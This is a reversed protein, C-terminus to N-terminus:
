WRNIKVSKTNTFKIEFKYEYVKGTKELKFTSQNFLQEYEIEYGIKVQEFKKNAAENYLEDKSKFFYTGEGIQVNEQKTIFNSKIPFSRTLSDLLNNYVLMFDRFYAPKVWLKFSIQFLKNDCFQLIGINSSSNKFCPPLLFKFNLQSYFASDGNLEERHLWYNFPEETDYVNSNM